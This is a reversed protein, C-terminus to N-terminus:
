RLLSFRQRALALVPHCSEPHDGALAARLREGAAVPSIRLVACEENVVAQRVQAMMGPVDGIVMIELPAPRTLLAHLGGGGAYRFDCVLQDAGLTGDQILWAEGAVVQGAQRTWAPAQAGPLDDAVRAADARVEDPGIAALVRLFTYAEPTAAERLVLILDALARRYGRPDPAAAELVGLQQSTWLEARLADPLATLESSATLFARYVPELGPLALQTRM